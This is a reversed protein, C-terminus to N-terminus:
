TFGCFWPLFRGDEYKEFGGGREMTIVWMKYLIGFYDRADAFCYDKQFHGNLATTKM